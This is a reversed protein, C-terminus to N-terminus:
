EVGHRNEEGGQDPQHEKRRWRAWGRGRRKERGDQSEDGAYYRHYYYYYYPGGRRGPVLRNLVVGLVRADAKELIEKARRLTDRPTQDIDVVLLVNEAQAALLAADAMGMVPPSDLLVMDAQKRLEEVILGMKKSSLLDPPNRPLPGSPLVLLGPVDTPQLLGNGQVQVGLFLDTLGRRNELGFLKHLSPRRLDADVLIVKKGAQAMVIGLNALTTTKGEGPGASTVLLSGSPNDVDSFSLNTRLVRYAEIVGGHCGPHTVLRDTLQRVHEMRGIAGLASLGLEQELEEPSRISDDLYELLFATSVGLVLGSILGLATNLLTRPAVPTRPLEAPAFISITDVYRAMALRFDEASKLLITYRTELSTLQTQYRALELRAFEPMKLNQPDTPDGISTIAKQTEEIQREIDAIQAEIESLGAQFRAQQQSTIQDIFVRATTDAIEKALGPNEHVATIKILQTDRVQEVRIVKEPDYSVGLRSMVQQSIVPSRIQEVYTQAAAEGFRYTSYPDTRPDGGPDISLTTTASYTPTTTISLLYTMGTVLVTALLILWMRTWIVEVFRKLEM